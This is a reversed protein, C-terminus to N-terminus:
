SRANSVGAVNDPEELRRSPRAPVTAKYRDALAQRQQANVREDLELRYPHGAGGKHFCSQWYEFVRLEAPTGWGLYHDVEFLRCRLGLALADNVCTDVYYEGNVTGGRDIMRQASRRFDSAKKFTFTGVIIPDAAPDELPVKVSIRRVNGAEDADIWGFHEPRKRAPPHGRYGWVILDVADDEMLSRFADEQYLVGNDCAGITLPSGEDLGELGMLCTRAQGDTAEALRVHDAHPFAANVASEVDGIMPLDQRLIVRQRAAAPLDSMAQVIMPRGSVEVLPKPLAYGENAFRSGLGAAPILLTGPQSPVPHGGSSLSRFQNSWKRYEEFDEPTGWQMFHQLEYVAVPLEREFLIKYAMSVYYEDKVTLARSVTQEFAERMLAGTRFYYTGSSAFEEFPNSTFPKKEQIDSAWLGREKVYAYFTSGLSHPHFGRYSPICGACETEAVFRKFDSYNWFCTFDCYNVITPLAPDVLDIATLVSHVPGLKHPDIAVIRASPAAAKLISEMRFEPDALHERSCVFIINDEGPFMETVHTIIPKGEIEILAKPTRYGARRFREGFGSLPIVIQM